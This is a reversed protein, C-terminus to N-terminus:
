KWHMKKYKRFVTKHVSLGVTMVHCGFKSPGILKMNEKTQPEAKPSYHHLALDVQTKLIFTLRVMM